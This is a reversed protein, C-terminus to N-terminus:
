ARSAGGTGRGNLRRIIADSRRARTGRHRRGAGGGGAPAGRGRPLLKTALFGTITTVLGIGVGLLVSGIIRGWAHGPLLRRLRRDHGVGLGVVAVDGGTSINAGPDGREAVLVLASALELVVIAVLFVLFIATEARERLLQRVVRPRRRGAPGCPAPSTSSGSCACGPADAPQGIFDAWGWRMYERRSPATALRYGFDMLFIICLLGDIITVVQDVEPDLALFWCSSTRRAVPVHDRHHVARLRSARPTFPITVQDM